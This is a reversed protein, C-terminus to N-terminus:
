LGSRLSFALEALKGRLERDPAKESPLRRRAHTRYPSTTCDRGRLVALSRFFFLVVACATWFHGFPVQALSFCERSSAACSAM